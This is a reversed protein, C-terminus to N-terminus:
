SNKLRFQTPTCSAFKLFARYFTAKSNFGCEYGISEIKYDNYKADVLAKKAEQIRYQNVFDTFNDFGNARLINPFKREPIKTVKSIESLGISSDLYKKDTLVYKQILIFDDDTGFIKAPAFSQKAIDSRLVFRETLMRINFFGYYSIWYVIAVSAFRLPYYALTNPASVNEINYVVAFIWFGIIAFAFIMFTKLWRLNDYSAIKELLFSQKFLLNCVKAFLVLTFGLNVIEEIQAYKAILYSNKVDYFPIIFLMRLIIEALFLAASIQIIRKTLQEAQIYHMVFVYFCPIILAYWPILLSRAFSNLTVIGYDALMIQLNNLTFFLVFLNLYLVAPEKRRQFFVTYTLFGFGFLIGVVMMIIFLNEVTTM